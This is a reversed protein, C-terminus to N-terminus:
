VSLWMSVNLMNLCLNNWAFYECIASARSTCHVTCMTCACLTLAILRRENLRKAMLYKEPVVLTAGFVENYNVILMRHKM